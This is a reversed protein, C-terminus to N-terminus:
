RNLPAVYIFQGVSGDVIPLARLTAHRSAVTMTQAHSPKQMTVLAGSGDHDAIPNKATPQNTTVAM